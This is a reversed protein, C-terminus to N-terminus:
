SRPANAPKGAKAKSAPVPKPKALVASLELPLENIGTTVTATLPTKDAVMFKGGLKDVGRERPNGDKPERWEVLVKYDGKPAGDNNGFTSVEFSGDDKAFGVPKPANPDSPVLVVRAHAAPEGNVTIQGKVPYTPTKGSSGCGIAFLSALIPATVIRVAFKRFM